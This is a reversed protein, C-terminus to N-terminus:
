FSINSGVEFIAFYPYLWSKPDFLFLLIVIWWPIEEWVSVLLHKERNKSFGLLDLKNENWTWMM